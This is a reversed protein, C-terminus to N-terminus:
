IKLGAKFLDYIAAHKTTKEFGCQLCLFGLPPAFDHAYLHTCEATVIWFIQTFRWLMALHIYSSLRIPNPFLTSWTGSVLVHTSSLVLDNRHELITLMLIVSACKLSCLYRLKLSAYSRCNQILSSSYHLLFVLLSSFLDLVFKLSVCNWLSM